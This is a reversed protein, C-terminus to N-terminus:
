DKSIIKRVSQIGLSYGDACNAILGITNLHSELRNFLESGKIRNMM